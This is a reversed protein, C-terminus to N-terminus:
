PLRGVPISFTLYPAPRQEEDDSGGGSTLLAGLASGIALGAASGITGAAWRGESTGWLLHGTGAGLLAGGALGISGWTAAGALRRSSQYGVFAGVVPMVVIPVTEPRITLIDEPTHMNWGFVRSKFVFIGTVVHVGGFLGGALGIAARGVQASGPAPALCTLLLIGLAAARWRASRRARGWPIPTSGRRARPTAFRDTGAFRM